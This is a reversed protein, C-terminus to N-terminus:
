IFFVAGERQTKDATNMGQIRANGDLTEETLDAVPFDPTGPADPEDRHVAIKRVVPEGVFCEDMIQQTSCDAFEQVCMKMLLALVSKHNFLNVVYQDLTTKDEALTMANVISTDM